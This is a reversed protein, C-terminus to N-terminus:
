TKSGSLFFFSVTLPILARQQAANIISQNVFKNGKFM